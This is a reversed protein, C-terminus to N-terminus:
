SFRWGTTPARERAIAGSADEIARLRAGVSSRVELCKGHGTGGAGQGAEATEFSM